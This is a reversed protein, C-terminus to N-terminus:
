KTTKETHLFAIIDNAQADTLGADGWRPMVSDLQEGEEDIGKLMARKILADNQHYQEELAPSQLDASTTDGLNIGGSADTKHCVACKSEFLTKGNAADGTTAAGATMAAGASLALAGAVALPMILGKGLESMSNVM